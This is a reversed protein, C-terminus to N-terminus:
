VADLVTNISKGEGVAGCIVCIMEHESVWIQGCRPCHFRPRPTRDAIMNKKKKGM